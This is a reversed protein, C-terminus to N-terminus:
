YACVTLQKRRTDWGQVVFIGEGIHQFVAVEADVLEAYATLDADATDPATVDNMLPGQPLSEAPDGLDMPGPFGAFDVPEHGSSPGQEEDDSCRRSGEQVNSPRQRGRVSTKRRKLPQQYRKAGKTPSVWADLGEASKLLAAPYQAKDDHDSDEPDFEAPQRRRGMQAPSQFSQLHTVPDEVKVCQQSSM